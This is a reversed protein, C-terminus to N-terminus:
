RLDIVFFENRQQSYLLGRKGNVTLLGSLTRNMDLAKNVHTIMPDRAEVDLADLNAYNSAFPSNGEDTCFNLGGSCNTSVREQKLYERPNNDYTIVSWLTLDGTNYEKGGYLQPRLDGTKIGRWGSDHDTFGHNRHDWSLMFRDRNRDMVPEVLSIKRASDIKEIDEFKELLGDVFAGNVKQYADLDNEKLIQRLYLAALRICDNGGKQLRTGINKGSFVIPSGNQDAIQANNLQGALEDVNVSSGGMSDIIYFQGDHRFAGMLQHRSTSLMLGVIPHGLVFGARLAEIISTLKNTDAPYNISHGGEKFDPLFIPGNKQPTVACLVDSHMELPDNSAHSCNRSEQRLNIVYIAYEHSIPSTDRNLYSKCVRQRAQHIQKEAEGKVIELQEQNYLSVKEHTGCGLWPTLLVVIGITKITYKFGSKMLTNNIKIIVHDIHTTHM